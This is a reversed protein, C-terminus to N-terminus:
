ASGGRGRAQDFVFGSPSIVVHGARCRHPKVTGPGFNCDREEGSTLSCLLGRRWSLLPGFEQTCICSATQLRRRLQCGGVLWHFPRSSINNEWPSSFRLRQFHFM